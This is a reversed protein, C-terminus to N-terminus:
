QIFRRANYFMRMWPSNEGWTDPSWSMQATRFVREPHPMMILVNGAENTVAATAYESGNPNFPYNTALKGNNEVYQGAIIKRTSDEPFVARGEGHAIAVPIEAGQMGAFFLSTSDQIKISSFRAEFQESKNKLFQPWGNTGPIIEKISSLMQCGNCVGLTFKNEDSFYHIFQQKMKENFLISNAWGKGAGLVDGYSFGGCAALGQFDMLNIKEDIIDQMHVDYSEFGARHFAMAMEKQGNVGQERFIAVKPKYTNIFPAVIDKSYDFDVKPSLGRDKGKINEFEQQCTEPNDRLMTMRHSVESWKQQLHQLSDQFITEGNRRVEFIIQQQNQTKGILHAAKTLMHKKLLDKFMKVKDEEIAVVVGLEENFLISLDDLDSFDINLIMGVQSAMCMELVSVFLGGDSIDHYAAIGESIISEQMMNWFRKFLDVNELRPVEQGLQNVTQALCSAGLRKYGQALDIYYLCYKKNRNFYPTLSKKVDQVNAFASIILSVPSTVQKDVGNDEWQSNMSLSDKGVPIGIGLEPCLEEGIAKVADFLVEDERGLGSAAMWNASLKINSLKGINNGACNLLAECVAMKASASGDILALPAKEGISMVEGAFGDYDRLTVGCDAVPVQWPGVMQDRHVLGSVTRDGITILYKKSAVAPFNLVKNIADVLTLNSLNLAKLKPSRRIIDKYTKPTNGFLLDMPIDVPKNGFYSDNVILNREKTARGLIAFPCRERKCFSKFQELKKPKISLVYREQSENCWIEMPSMSATDIQLNRLELVGGLGADDLLEPMANSLGGAGVDHISRIPSQSSLTWCSDIVEQCRREMEPNGRQVSAFDLDECSSGSTVSSAAGGGLGILMAPGGLVVLYDGEQTDQKIALENNISGLGGALMIPKHYGRWGFDLTNIELSRFYGCINPRGFENNFAAGGIPAKLMIDLSSAIRQPKGINVSEWDQLFNPIKLHSVSYGTLGAKPRSGQGTAAEDRIEGGSGTAAGPFPSIATPHNHTEVKILIDTLIESKYYQNKENVLWRQAHGGTFVASNDKYASIAPKPTQAETNRIMAFLSKDQTKQNINWQANFIKHRCHESNAQAFMMLETQTPNKDITTYCKILYEKESESLALGLKKDVEDLNQPNDVISIQQEPRAKHEDFLLALDEVNSYISEMMRDYISSDSIKFNHISNNFNFLKAAEIRIISNFGCHKLIDTAKSSWPSITGFRPAVIVQTNDIKIIKEQTSLVFALQNLDIDKEHNVHVVYITEISIIDVTSYGFEQNIKDLRFQSLAAGGKLIIVKKQM